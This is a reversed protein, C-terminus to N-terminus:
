LFSKLKIALYSGMAYGIIFSHALRWDHVTENIGCVLALAQMGSFTAATIAKGRESYHTWFVATGELFLGSLFTTIIDNNTM